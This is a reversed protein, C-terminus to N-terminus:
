HFGGAWLKHFIRSQLVQLQNPSAGRKLFQILSLFVKIVGIGADVKIYILHQHLPKKNYM